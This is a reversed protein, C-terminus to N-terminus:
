SIQPLTLNAVRFTTWYYARLPYSMNGYICLIDGHPGFLHQELQHLIWSRSLMFSEHYCKGTPGYLYAIMETPCVFLQIKQWWSAETWQQRQWKVPKCVFFVIQDVFDWCNELPAGIQHLHDAYLWSELNEPSICPRYFSYLVHHSRNYILSM